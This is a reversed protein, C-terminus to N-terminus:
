NGMEGEEKVHAQFRHVFETIKVVVSDQGEKRHLEEADIDDRLRQLHEANHVVIEESRKKIRQDVKELDKVVQEHIDERTKQELESHDILLSVTEELKKKIQKNKTRREEREKELDYVLSEVSRRAPELIAEAEAIRTEREENIAELVVQQWEDLKQFRANIKVIREEETVKLKELMVVLKERYEKMFAEVHEGIEVLLAEITQRTQEVRELATEHMEDMVRRKELKNSVVDKFQSTTHDVASRVQVMRKCHETLPKPKDWLTEIESMGVFSQPKLTQVSTRKGNTASGLKLTAAGATQLTGSSGSHGLKLTAQSNRLNTASM